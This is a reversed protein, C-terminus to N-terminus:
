WAEVQAFSKIDSRLIADWLMMHEKRVAAEHKPGRQTTRKVPSEM